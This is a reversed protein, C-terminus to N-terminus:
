FILVLLLDLISFSRALLDKKKRQNKERKRRERDRKGRDFSAYTCYLIDYLKERRINELRPSISM